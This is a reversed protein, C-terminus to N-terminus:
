IFITSNWDGDEFGMEFGNLNVNIKDLAQIDNLKKNLEEMKSKNDKSRCAM